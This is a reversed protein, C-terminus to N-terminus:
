LLTRDHGYLRGILDRVEDWTLLRYDKDHVQLHRRDSDEVDVLYVPCETTWQSVPVNINWYHKGCDDLEVNMADM